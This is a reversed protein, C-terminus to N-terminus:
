TRKEGARAVELALAHLSLWIDRLFAVIALILVTRIMIRSKHLM